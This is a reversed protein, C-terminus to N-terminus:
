VTGGKDLDSKKYLGKEIKLYHLSYMGESEKIIKSREYVKSLTMCEKLLLGWALTKIVKNECDRIVLDYRYLPPDPIVDRVTKSTALGKDVLELRRKLEKQFDM